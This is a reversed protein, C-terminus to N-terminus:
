DSLVRTSTQSSRRESWSGLLATLSSGLWWRYRAHDWGVQDTFFLHAEPGVILSLEAAATELAEPTEAVLLGRSVTWEAAIRMDSWRRKWLDEVAAAAAGDIEAASQMARSLAASRRNAEAIYDLYRSLAEDTSPLSMLDRVEDRESLSQAWENGTFATEFAAILLSAKAGALRVSQVSVEAERAIDRMTTGNYGSRAFLTGAAEVIRRRTRAAEAERLPSSYTRPM